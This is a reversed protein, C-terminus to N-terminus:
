RSITGIYVDFRSAYKQPLYSAYGSWIKYGGNAIWDQYATKRAGRGMLRVRYYTPKSPKGCYGASWRELQYQYERRTSANMSKVCKKLTEIKEMDMSSMPDATFQYSNSRQKM